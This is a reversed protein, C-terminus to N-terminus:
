AESADPIVVEFSTETEGVVTYSTGPLVDPRIPDEDTGAGIKNVTQQM